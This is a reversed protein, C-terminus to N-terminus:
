HWTFGETILRLRSTENVGFMTTLVERCLGALDGGIVRLYKVGNEEHMEPEYGWQKALSEFDSQANINGESNLVWDFGLQGNEISFQTNPYTGDTGLSYSEILIVSFTGDKRALATAELVRPVDSLKVSFEGGKSLGSGSLIRFFAKLM